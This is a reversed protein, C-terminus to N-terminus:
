NFNTFMAGTCWQIRRNCPLVTWAIDRLTLVPGSPNEVAPNITEMPGLTPLEGRTGRTVKAQLGFERVACPVQGM